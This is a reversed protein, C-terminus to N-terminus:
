KAAHTMASMLMWITEPVVTRVAQHCPQCLDGTRTTGRDIPATKGDSTPVHFHLDDLESMDVEDDETPNGKQDAYDWGGKGDPTLDHITVGCKEPKM